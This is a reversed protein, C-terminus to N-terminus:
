VGGLLLGLLRRLAELAQSDPAVLSLALVGLLVVAMGMMGTRILNQNLRELGRTQNTLAEQEELVHSQIVRQTDQSIRQTDRLIAMTQEQKGQLLEISTRVGLLAEYQHKLKSEVEDLRRQHTGVKERVAGIEVAQYRIKSHAEDIDRKRAAAENIMQLIGPDTEIAQSVNPTANENM